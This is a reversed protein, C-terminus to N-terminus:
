SVYSTDSFLLDHRLSGCASKHVARSLIVMLHHFELLSQNWFYCAFPFGLGRWQHFTIIYRSNLHFHSQWPGLYLFCFATTGAIFVLCPPKLSTNPQVYILAYTHVLPIM